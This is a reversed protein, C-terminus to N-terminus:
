GGFCPLLRFQWFLGVLRVLFVCCYLGIQALDSQKKKAGWIALISGVLIGILAGGLSFIQM